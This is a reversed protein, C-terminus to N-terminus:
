RINISRHINVIMTRVFFICIITAYCRSSFMSQKTNMIKVLTHENVKSEDEIDSLEDVFLEESTLLQIRRTRKVNERENGFYRPTEFSWVANAIIGSALADVFVNVQDDIEKGWSPLENRVRQFDIYRQIVMRGAENLADQISLLPNM